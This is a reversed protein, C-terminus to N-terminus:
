SKARYVNVYRILCHVLGRIAVLDKMFIFHINFLSFTTRAANSLLSFISSFIRLLERSSFSWSIYNSLLIKITSGKISRIPRTYLFSFLIAVIKQRCITIEAYKTFITACTTTIYMYPWCSQLYGQRSFFHM